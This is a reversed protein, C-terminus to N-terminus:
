KFFHYMILNQVYSIDLPCNKTEFTLILNDGPIYGCDIYNRIKSFMTNQYSSLDALGFHEWIILKGTHPHRITFDPYITFEGAKFACEYKYSLQNNFLEHAIIAESKSRVFQGKPAKVTLAEPHTPNSDYQEDSLWDFQDGLLPLYPSHESLINRLKGSTRASAYAKISKLENKMDSIYDTLLTKRALKKAYTINGRPIYTRTFKNNEKKQCFWQSGKAYCVLTGEPLTAAEKEYEEIKTKLWEQRIAFYDLM